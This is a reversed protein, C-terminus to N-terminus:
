VVSKRDTLSVTAGLRIIGIDSAGSQANGADTVLLFFGATLILARLATRIIMKVEPHQKRVLTAMGPPKADIGEHHSKLDSFPSPTGHRWFISIHKFPVGPKAACGGVPGSRKRSSIM